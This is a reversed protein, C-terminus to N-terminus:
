WEQRTAVAIRGQLVMRVSFACQGGLVLVLVLALVLILDPTRRVGELRNIRGADDSHCARRRTLCGRPHGKRAATGAEDARRNPSAQEVPQIKRVRM